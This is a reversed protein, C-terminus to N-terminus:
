VAEQLSECSRRAYVYKRIILVKMQPTKKIGLNLSM